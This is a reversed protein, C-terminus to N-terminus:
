QSSNTDRVKDYLEKSEKLDKVGNKIRFLGDATAGVAGVVDGRTARWIGVATEVMGVGTQEMGSEYKEDAKRKLDEKKSSKAYAHNSCAVLFIFFAVVIIRSNKINM